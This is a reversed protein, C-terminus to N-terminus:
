TLHRLGELSTAIGRAGCQWEIGRKGKVLPERSVGSLAPAPPVSVPAENGGQIGPQPNALDRLSHSLSRWVIASYTRSTSDFSTCLLHGTHRLPSAANTTSRTLLSAPIYLSLIGSPLDHSFQRHLAKPPTNPCCASQTARKLETFPSKNAKNGQFILCAQASLADKVDQPLHVPRFNQNVRVLSARQGV